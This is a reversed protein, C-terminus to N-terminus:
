IYQVPLNSHAPVAKEHIILGITNTGPQKGFAHIDHANITPASRTPPMWLTVRPSSSARLHTARGQVVRWEVLEEAMVLGGPATGAGLCAAHIQLSLHKITTMAALQLWHLDQHSLTHRLIPNPPTHDKHLRPTWFLMRSRAPGGVKSTAMSISSRPLHLTWRSTACTLPQAPGPTATQKNTGISSSSSSCLCQLMQSSYNRPM